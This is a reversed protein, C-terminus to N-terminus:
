WKTTRSLLRYALVYELVWHEGGAVRKWGRATPEGTKKKKIILIVIIIIIMITIILLILINIM